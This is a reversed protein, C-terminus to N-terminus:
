QTPPLPIRDEEPLGQNVLATTFILANTAISNTASNETRYVVYFNKYVLRQWSEPDSGASSLFMMNTAPDLAMPIVGTAYVDLSMSTLSQDAFASLRAELGNVKMEVEGTAMKESPVNTTMIDFELTGNWWNTAIDYRVANVVISTPCIWNTCVLTADGDSVGTLTMLRHARDRSEQQEMEETMYTIAPLTYDPEVAFALLVASTFVVFNEKLAM